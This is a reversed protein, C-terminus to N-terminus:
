KKGRLFWGIGVIIIGVVVGVIQIPGFKPDSGLGFINPIGLIDSLFFIALIVLGIVLLITGITKKNMM